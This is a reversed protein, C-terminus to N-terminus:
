AEGLKITGQSYVTGSDGPDEMRVSLTKGDGSLRLTLRIRQEPLIMNPFKMKKIAGPAASTGLCESALRMAIAVQAVAPLIPFGPFHGDFYPSAAGVSFEIAASGDQVQRSHVTLSPEEFLSLIQQRSRKGQSDLPLAQPFRWKRPIVVPEFFDALHSRFHRNMELKPCDKFREKGAQNLVVAAGLSQRRAGQLPVVAAEQVLGTQLLRGEIETTSIRKEEIKVISDARGSLIFTGDELMQALDGTVFGEPSRIYPSRVKLCGDGTLTIEANDFPKWQVGNQSRRWAIGSTETSGYIEVPWFGFVADTREAEQPTLVGGSTFIWPDLLKYRLEAENARKLFAPVAIITYATDTLALFEEPHEIRTRRFPVGATFPLMVSFLLGYIHHHSVTACLKRKILEPGWQSLVFRNDQEFETLRQLVAKPRGTSGSTYLIIKTEDPNVSPMELEKDSGTRDDCGAGNSGACDSGALIEEISTANAIPRDTLFSTGDKWIEQLFSPSVNATILITKRCQLLAAYAVLFLWADECHLLWREQQQRNIFARLTATDLVFDKWTKYSGQSWNGEYCLIAGDPRSSRTARSLPVEKEMSKQVSTRVIFEGAFLAGMLIYSICGNYIAWTRGSAFVATWFSVTGNAAFFCCWIVTVKRCYGKVRDRTMSQRISPQARTAFRYIIPEPSFLSTLFLCFM